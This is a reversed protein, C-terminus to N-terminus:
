VKGLLKLLGMTGLFVFYCGGIVLASKIWLRPRLQKPLLVSNVAVTHWCSFAFAFNYGTTALKFVFAPKETV